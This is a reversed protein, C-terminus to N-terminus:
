KKSAADISAVISKALSRARDINKFYDEGPFRINEQIPRLRNTCGEM